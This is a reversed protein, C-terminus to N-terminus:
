ERKLNNFASMLADVGAHTIDTDAGAGWYMNGDLAKIGVYAVAMSQSGQEQMSHETYVQLTYQTGSYEKLANSVANLSGNGESIAKTIKGNYSFEIDAYVKDGKRTFHM